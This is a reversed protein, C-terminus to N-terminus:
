GVVTALVARTEPHDVLAVARRAHTKAQAADGRAFSALAQAVAAEAGREAARVLTLDAGCRRCPERLPEEGSM